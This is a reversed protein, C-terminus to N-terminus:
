ADELREIEALTEVDFPTRHEIMRAGRPGDHEAAFGYRLLGEVAARIATAKGEIATEIAKMSRAEGEAALYESVKEMLYTPLEGARRAEEIRWSMSGDHATAVFTGAIPRAFYAGRDKLVHLTSRGTGERTIYHEGEVKMGLAAHAGSRKRQSGIAEARGAKEAAKTVHDLVVFALGAKAFPDAISQYFAEVDSGVNEDLGLMSLTATMSDLVVFRISKESCEGLLASVIEPTLGGDPERYVFREAIADRDAGLTRLRQAIERSGMGDTDLWLCGRGAALEDAAATLAAWTKGSESPGSLLNRYELYFLGAIEPERPPADLDALLDVPELWGSATGDGVIALGARAGNASSGGLKGAIKGAIVAAEFDRDFGLTEPPPGHAATIDVYAAVTADLLDDFSRRGARVADWASSKMAERIESTTPGAYVGLDHERENEGTTTM